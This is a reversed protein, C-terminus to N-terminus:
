GSISHPRSSWVLRRPRDAGGARFESGVRKARRRDTWADRARAGVMEAGVQLTETRRVSWLEGEAIGCKSSMTRLVSARGARVRPSRHSELGTSVVGVRRLRVWVVVLTAERVGLLVSRGALARARIRRSCGASAAVVRRVWWRGPGLLRVSSVLLRWVRRLTLAALLTGGVRGERRRVSAVVGCRVRRVRGWRASM